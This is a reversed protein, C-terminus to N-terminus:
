TVIAETPNYKPTFAAETYRVFQPTIPNAKAVESLAKKSNSKNPHNSFRRVWNKEQFSSITGWNLIHAAPKKMAMKKYKGNRIKSSNTKLVELVKSNSTSVIQVPVTPM